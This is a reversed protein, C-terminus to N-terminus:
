CQLNLNWTIQPAKEQAELLVNMVIRRAYAPRFEICMEQFVNALSGDAGVTWYPNVDCKKKAM